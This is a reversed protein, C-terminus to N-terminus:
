GKPNIKALHKAYVKLGVGCLALVIYAITFAPPLEVLEAPLYIAGDTAANGIEQLLQPNEVVAGTLIAGAIQETGAKALKEAKRQANKERIGAILDPIGLLLGGVLAGIIPNKQQAM